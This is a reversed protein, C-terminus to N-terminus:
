PTYHRSFQLQLYHTIPTAYGVRRDRRSTRYALRGFKFARSVGDARCKFGSELASLLLDTDM